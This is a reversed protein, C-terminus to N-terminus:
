RRFAPRYIDWEVPVTLTKIFPLAAIVAFTTYEEALREVGVIVAGVGMHAPIGERVIWVRSGVRVPRDPQVSVVPHRHHIHITTVMVTAGNAMLIQFLINNCVLQPMM